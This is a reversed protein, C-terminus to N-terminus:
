CFVPESFLLTTAHCPVTAETPWQLDSPCAVCEAVHGGGWWLVCVRSGLMWRVLLKVAIGRRRHSAAVFVSEVFFSSDYIPLDPWIGDGGSLFSVRGLAAAAAEPTGWGPADHVNLEIRRAVAEFSAQASATDASYFCASGVPTVVSADSEPRLADGDAAERAVAARSVFFNKYFVHAQESSEIVNQIALMAQPCALVDQVGFLLDWM